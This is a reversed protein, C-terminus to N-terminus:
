KKPTIAPFTGEGERVTFRRSTIPNWNIGQNMLFVQLFQRVTVRSKDSSPIAFWGVCVWRKGSRQYVLYPTTDPTINPNM